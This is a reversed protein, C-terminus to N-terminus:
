SDGAPLRVYFASGRNPESEAWVRGGHREVIRKVLALGMGTGAYKEPNLRTFVGFIKEAYKPDFGIGNDRVVIIWWGDDRTASVHIVPPRDPSRYKLANSILNQFLRVMQGRNAKVNPLPDHTIIAGSEEIAMRLQSMATEMDENLSVSCAAVEESAVHSWSLLDQVLYHMRAAGQQLHMLMAKSEEPLLGSYRREFLEAFTRVARAPEQLDHAVAYTFQSLADNSQTLEDELQKQRTEDSIVKAYGILEGNERLAQLTGHTFLTSGDKRHHWRINAAQGEEAARKLEMAPVGAARDEPTFIISAEQGLFEEERYGLLNEVGKNWTLITGRQDMLFMAYDCMGRVQLRYLTATDNSLRAQNTMCRNHVPNCENRSALAGKLRGRKVGGLQADGDV